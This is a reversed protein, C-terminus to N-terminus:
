IFDRVKIVKKAINTDLTDFRTTRTNSQEGLITKRKTKARKSRSTASKGYKKYCYSYIYIGIMVLILTGFSSGLIILILDDGVAASSEELM